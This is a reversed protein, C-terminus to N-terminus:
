MHALLFEEVKKFVEEKKSSKTLVHESGQFYVLRKDESSVSYYITQANKPESTPDHDFQVVLIPATIKGLDKPYDRSLKWLQSIAAMSRKEYYHGKDAEDLDPTMYPMFYQLFGAHRANQDVFDVIAAMSIVGKVEKNAALRLALAGGSSIGGVFVEGDCLYGLAKYGLEVTAYWDTWKGPRLDEYKTGHGALLVGLVTVGFKNLYEALERNEWPTATFGHALLLCAKQDEAELLFPLSDEVAGRAKADELHYQFIIRGTQERLQFNDPQSAIREDLVAIQERLSLVAKDELEMYSVPMNVIVMASIVLGLFVVIVGFIKKGFRM